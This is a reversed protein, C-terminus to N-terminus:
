GAEISGRLRGEQRLFVFRPLEHVDRIPSVVAPLFGPANTHRFLARYRISGHLDLHRCNFPARV